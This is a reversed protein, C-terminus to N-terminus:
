KGRAVTAIGGAVGGVSDHVSDGQGLPFPGAWLAGWVTKAKGSLILELAIIAIVLALASSRGGGTGGNGM